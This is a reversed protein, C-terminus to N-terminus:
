RNQCKREEKLMEYLKRVIVNWEMINWKGTRDKVAYNTSGTDQLKAVAFIAANLVIEKDEM